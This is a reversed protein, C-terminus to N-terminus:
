TTTPQETFFSSAKPRFLFCVVVIYLIVGPIMYLKMPSIVFGIIGGIGGQITYLWRTWNKGKLFGVGCILLVLIAFGTMALQASIPLPSSEEM